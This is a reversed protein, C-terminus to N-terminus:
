AVIRLRRRQELEHAAGRLRGLFAHVARPVSGREFALLAELSWGEIPELEGLLEERRASQEADLPLKSAAQLLELLEHVERLARFAHFMPGALSPETQWSRGDFLDRTVRQGAGLCDYQACGSFGRSKLDAHIACRHSPTLHRCPSGAPKDFAFQSSRDFALSVCCLAACRACDASLRTSTM